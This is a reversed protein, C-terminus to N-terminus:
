CPRPTFWHVSHVWLFCGAISNDSPSSKRIRRVTRGWKTVHTDGSSAPLFPFCNKRSTRALLLMQGRLTESALSCPFSFQNWERVRQADRERVPLYLVQRGLPPLRENNPLLALASAARLYRPWISGSSRRSFTPSHLRTPPRTVTQSPTYQVASCEVTTYQWVESIQFFIHFNGYKLM